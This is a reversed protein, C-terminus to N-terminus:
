QKVINQDGSTTSLTQIEFDSIGWVYGTSFSSYINTAGDQGALLSAKNLPLLTRSFINHILSSIPQLSWHPVNYSVLLVM